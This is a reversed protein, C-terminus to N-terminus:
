NEDQTRLVHELTDALSITSPPQEGLESALVHLIYAGTALGAAPETRNQLWFVSLVGYFLSPNQVLSDSVPTVILGDPSSTIIEPGFVAIQCDIEELLDTIIRLKTVIGTDSYTRIPVGLIGCLKFIETLTLILLTKPNSVVQAMVHRLLPLAEDFIVLPSSISTVLKEILITTESNNSLSAGLAVADAEESLEIIRGLAGPSLSGSATQPVFYTGPAGALIKALGDPLVVHCDGLGAAMSFQYIATPASFDGSHGGVVLLRGAGHKSIPRNYLAKPYLPEARQFKFGSDPGTM